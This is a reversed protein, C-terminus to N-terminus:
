NISQNIPNSQTPNFHNPNSHRAKSQNISEITSQTQHISQNISLNISPHRSPHISPRVTEGIGYYGSVAVVQKQVKNVSMYPQQRRVRKAEPAAPIDCPAPPTASSGKKSWIRRKIGTDLPAPPPPEVIAGPPAAPAPSAGPTAAPPPLPAPSSGAPAPSASPCEVPPPPRAKLMAEVQKKRDSEIKEQKKAEKAKAEREAKRDDLALLVEPLSPKLPSAPKAPSQAVLAHSASAGAVPKASESTDLPESPEAPRDELAPPAAPGHPESLVTSADELLPMSRTRPFDPVDFSDRLADRRCPRGGRLPVEGLVDRLGGGTMQQIMKTQQEHLQKMGNMMIEAFQGVQNMSVGGGGSSASEGALIQRGRPGGGENRCTYTQDFANVMSANIRKTPVADGIVSKYVDPYQLALETLTAPLADIWIAPAMLHQVHKLYEDRLQNKNSWKEKPTMCRQQEKSLTHTALLSYMRKYTWEDGRRLGLNDMFQFLDAQKEYPDVNDDQLRDQLNDPMMAMFSLFDQSQQGKKKKSASCRPGTAMDALEKKDACKFHINSVIRVVESREDNTM